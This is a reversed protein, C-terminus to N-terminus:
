FANWYDTYIGMFLENLEDIVLMDVNLLTERFQMLANSKTIGTIGSVKNIYEDVNNGTLNMDDVMNQNATSTQSSSGDANTLSNSDVISTAYDENGALQMQPTSSNLTRATSNTNSETTSDAVTEAKESRNIKRDESTDRTSRGSNTMDYNNFPDFEFLASKYLQNYYPMIERMKRLLFKRFLAPTELGIERFEYHDYIKNNLGERYSEDFIPYSTPKDMQLDFGSNILTGLEITFIAM